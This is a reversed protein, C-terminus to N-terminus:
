LDNRDSSWGLLVMHMAFAQEGPRDRLNILINNRAVSSIATNDYWLAASGYGPAADNGATLCITNNDATVYYSQWARIGGVATQSTSLCRIDFIVNNYIWIGFGTAIGDGSAVIGNVVTNAQAISLDHVTNGCIITEACHYANIGIQHGRSGGGYVLRLHHVHNGEIRAKDVEVAQIGMAMRSDTPTGLENHAIVPKAPRKIGDPSSGLYIGYFGTAIANNEVVCHNPAGETLGMIGIAASGRLDDANFHTNRIIVNVANGTVDIGDNFSRATNTHADVRLQTPGSLAIGDVTVYSANYIMLVAEGSGRLTVIHDDAPRITIRQTSDAGEIPGSLGFWGSGAPSAIYLSDTLLLTVAGGIGTHIRTFASDLTPFTGGAGVTYSGGPLPGLTSTAIKPMDPVSVIRKHAADGALTQACVVSLLLCIIGIHTPRM